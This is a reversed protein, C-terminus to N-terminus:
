RGHLRFSASTTESQSIFAACEDLMNEDHVLWAFNDTTTYVAQSHFIDTLLIREHRLLERLAKKVLKLEADAREAIRKVSHVGNIHSNSPLSPVENGMVVQVDAGATQHTGSSSPGIGVADVFGRSRTVCDLFWNMLM